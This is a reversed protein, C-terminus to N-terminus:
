MPSVLFTRQRGLYLKAMMNTDGSGCLDVLGKLKNMSNIKHTRAIHQFRRIEHSTCARRVARLLGNKELLRYNEPHILALLSEIKGIKERLHQLADAETHVGYGKWAPENHFLRNRFERVTTVLNQAHTLTNSAQNSPWAGAFVSGLRSPWILGNGMFEQDLMFGWTSFETKAIVGHHTLPIHGTVGYRYRQEKRYSNTAKTFNTRVNNVVTPVAASPAFSRYHLKNATWWFYGLHNSLAHDIANRLTIEATSIIPYITGTVHANWLYVGMLEIDSAPQFVNQYSNIRENSILKDILIPRYQITKPM